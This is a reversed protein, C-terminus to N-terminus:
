VPHGRACHALGLMTAFFSGRERKLMGRQVLLEGALTNDSHTRIRGKECVAKLLMEAAAQRTPNRSFVDM